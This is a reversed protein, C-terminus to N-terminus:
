VISASTARKKCDGQTRLPDNLGRTTYGDSGTVLGGFAMSAAREAIILGYAVKMATSVSGAMTFYTGLASAAPTALADFINAQM